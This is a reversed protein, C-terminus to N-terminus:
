NEGMKHKKCTTDLVVAKYAGDDYNKNMVIQLEDSLENVRLKEAIVEKHKNRELPNVTQKIGDLVTLFKHYPIGIALEDRSWQALMRTGSCLMSINMDNEEFPYSTCEQCIAQMGSMQIGKTHGEYYAYGQTFRMANYPDTIILVVDPAQEYESLPKIVVGYCDHECYVMKKSVNRAVCLTSYSGNKWRPKGSLTLQDPKLMGLAMAAGRCAFHEVTAKYAKGASANRIFTCYPMIGGIATETCNEYEERDLLFKVGVARRKLDLLSELLIASKKPQLSM